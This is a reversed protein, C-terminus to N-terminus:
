GCIGRKHCYVSLPIGARALVDALVEGAKAKTKTGDPKIHVTFQTETM